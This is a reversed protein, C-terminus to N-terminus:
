REGATGEGEKDEGEACDEVPLLKEVSLTTGKSVKKKVTEGPTTLEDIDLGTVRKLGRLLYFFIGGMVVMMPLGIILFGMWTIKGIGEVYEPSGGETGGLVRIALFYNAVASCCLTVALFSSCHFLLARFAPWGSRVELAAELKRLNVLKPNLLIQNVFPEKRLHSLLIFAAFLTPMVAEKIAFLQPTAGFLGLGGTVLVSIFGIASFFNFTRRAIYDYIGYAVPLSIALILSALPGLRDEGSMKSLIIAPLAINLLLNLFLNEEKEKGAGERAVRESQQKM